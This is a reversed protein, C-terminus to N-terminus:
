RPTGSSCSASTSTPSKGSNSGKAESSSNQPLQLRALALLTLASLNWATANCGAVVHAAFSLENWSRAIIDLDYLCREISCLACGSGKPKQVSLEDNVLKNPSEFAESGSHLLISGFNRAKTLDHQHCRQMVSMTSGFRCLRDNIINQGFQRTWHLSPHLCCTATQVPEWKREASVMCIPNLPNTCGREVDGEAFSDLRFHSFRDSVTHFLIFCEYLSVSTIYQLLRAPHHPEVLHWSIM